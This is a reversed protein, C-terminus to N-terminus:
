QIGHDENNRSWIIRPKPYFSQQYDKLENLEWVARVLFDFTRNMDSRFEALPINLPIKNIHLGGGRDAEFRFADGNPDMDHLEQIIKEADVRQPPRSGPWFYECATMAIKWLDCLRHHTYKENLKDDSFNEAVQIIRKLLLEFSQRYCFAMPYFLLQEKTTVLSDAIANASQWYAQAWLMRDYDQHFPNLQIIIGSGDKVEDNSLM